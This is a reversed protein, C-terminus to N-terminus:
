IIQVFPETDASPDANDLCIVKLGPGIKLILLGTRVIPVECTAHDKDVSLIDDVFTQGKVSGSVFLKWDALIGQRVVREIRNRGFPRLPDVKINSVLYALM